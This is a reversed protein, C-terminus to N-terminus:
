VRERKTLTAGASFSAEPPFEPSFHFFDSLPSKQLLPELQRVVAVEGQLLFYVGLRQGAPKSPLYTYLLHFSASCEMSAWAM